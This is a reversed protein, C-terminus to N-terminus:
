EWLVNISGNAPGGTFGVQQIEQAESPKFEVEINTNLTIQPPQNNLYFNVPSGTQNILSLRVLKRQAIFQGNGSSDLNVAFLPM